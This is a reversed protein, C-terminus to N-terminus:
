TGFAGLTVLTETIQLANLAAGKRIQDGCAFLQLLGSDQEHGRIRGVLVPDRLESSRPTPLDALELGPAAALLGMVAEVDPPREFWAAVSVGHSRRTPVRVCTAMVALSPLELIKRAERELKLEEDTHGRADLAGIRPLLNFALPGPFVDPKAEPDAMGAELERLGSAGAGSAAQYSSVVMRELHFAQHLPAMAMLTVITTCNPNAILTPHDELARGNIEPIVLPVDEEMRWASSNDVVIAGAARFEPAWRLAVERGASMLVLDLDQIADSSLREVELARGRFRLNQGASRLSAMLRLSGTPFQREEMLRLLEAGVAGTAGVIGVRLDPM